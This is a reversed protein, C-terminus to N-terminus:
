GAHHPCDHIAYREHPLDSRLALLAAGDLASGDPDHPTLHAAVLGASLAAAFGPDESLGGVISVQGRPPTVARAAAVLHDVAATTIQAALPDGDGARALVAPAFSALSRAVDPGGALTQPLQVLDAAIARADAELETKPGRRDASRLAAILGQRGIWQGSGEDGLWPGWGDSRTWTGDSSLHGAVAGTGAILITGPGGSFAGIHATVVDSTISVRWGWRDQVLEAVQRVGDDDSDGGAAGVGIAEVDALSDRPVGDLVAVIAEFVRRAGEYSAFGPAGKGVLEVATPGSIRARCKTKGLDIAIHGRAPPTREGAQTRRRDTM